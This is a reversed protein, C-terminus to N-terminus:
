RRHRLMSPLETTQLYRFLQRPFRQLNFHYSLCTYCCLFATSLNTTTTTTLLLLLLLLLLLPWNIVSLESIWFQEEHRRWILKLVNTWNVTTTVCNCQNILTIIYRLLKKENNVQKITSLALEDGRSKFIIALLLQSTAAAIRKTQTRIYLISICSCLVNQWHYM